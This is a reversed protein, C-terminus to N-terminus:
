KQGPSGQPSNMRMPSLFREAVSRSKLPTPQNAPASGVTLSRPRYPSGGPSSGVELRGCDLAAAKKPDQERLYAYCQLYETLNLSDSCVYPLPSMSELCLSTGSKDRDCISFQYRSFRDIISPEMRDSLLERMLIM